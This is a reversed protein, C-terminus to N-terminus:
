RPKRKRKGREGREKKEEEKRQSAAFNAFSATSCYESENVQSEVKREGSQMRWERTIGNEQKKKKKNKDIERWIYCACCCCCCSAVFVGYNNACISLQKCKGVFKAPLACINVLPCGVLCAPPRSGYPAHCIIVYRM